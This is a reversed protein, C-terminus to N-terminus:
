NLRLALLRPILANFDVQHLYYVKMEDLSMEPLSPEVLGLVKFSHDLGCIKSGFWQLCGQVLEHILVVHLSEDHTADICATEVRILRETCM